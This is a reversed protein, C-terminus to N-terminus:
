CRRQLGVRRAFRHRTGQRFPSNAHDSRSVHACIAIDGLRRMIRAAEANGNEDDVSFTAALTDIVVLRLPHISCADAFSGHSARIMRELETLVSDPKGIPVSKAVQIPIVSNSDDDYRERRAAFLRPAIEGQSEAALWLVGGRKVKRDCFKRGYILSLALDLGILTKGASFQGGLVAVGVEPLIGKILWRPIEVPRGGAFPFPPQVSPDIAFQLENDNHSPLREILPERGQERIRAITKPGNVLMPAGM